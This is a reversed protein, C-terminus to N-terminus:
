LSINRRKKRQELISQQRVREGISDEGDRKPRDFIDQVISPDITNWVSMEHLAYQLDGRQREMTFLAQLRQKKIKEKNKESVKMKLLKKINSVTRTDNIYAVKKKARDRTYKRNEERLVIMEQRVRDKKSKEANLRKLRVSTKSFETILKDIKSQEKQKSIVIKEEITKQRKKGETKLKRM